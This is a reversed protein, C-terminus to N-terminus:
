SEQAKGFVTPNKEESAWVRWSFGVRELIKLGMVHPQKGLTAAAGVASSLQAFFRPRQGPIELKFNLM